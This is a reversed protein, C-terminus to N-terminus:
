GEVEGLEQEHWRHSAHSDEALEIKLGEETAAFREENDTEQVHPEVPVVCLIPVTDLM